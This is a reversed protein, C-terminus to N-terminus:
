WEDIWKIKELGFSNNKAQICKKKDTQVMYERNTSPCVCHYFLLPKNINKVKFSIIEMKNGKDDIDEHIVKYGKLQFLKKKDMYEFAIRRHEANEISFVEEASLKDQLIKNVLKIDDMRVNEFPYLGGEVSLNKPLRKLQNNSCNLDGGVSLSEPLRKLQNDSCNLDGRVSLNKPLTKLQNNYCYLSGEVRLNEPLRKLQNNYCHLNGKVSLSEPLRKLQNNFCYLSGKVSLNEPLGKLQNNYCYLSGKVSLNKPLTKLQNDSCDLNGGVSLSEPLRKLQNNYCHLNGEFVLWKGVFKGGFRKQFEKQQM